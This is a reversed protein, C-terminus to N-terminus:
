RYIQIFVDNRWRTILELLREQSNMQSAFRAIDDFDNEFDMTRNQNYDSVRFLFVSNERRFAQGVTGVNLNPLSNRVPADLTRVTQWGLDGGFSRTINDTSFKEVAATFQEETPKSNATSDLSQMAQAINKENPNVPIFIHFVRVGQGSRETVRLLHWGLRTEIPASVEGPELAFAAAELRVLALTGRAVFGLDGGTTEAGPERSHRRAMDEFREGREVIQRRIYVITDFARQRAASDIGVQMEIKQLRVSEGLQPLSDKFNNYFNRVEERSLDRDVIYHHMVQQRIMEQRTQISIQERFEEFSMNDQQRLVMVLQDMTLRHQALIQNVRNDVQEWVDFDSIHINTDANAHAVLIRSNILEELAQEFIVNRMLADGGTQQLKMDTYVSVESYLIASDGVVAIVRDRTFESAFILTALFLIALITKKM